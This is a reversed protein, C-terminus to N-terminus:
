SQHDEKDDPTSCGREVTRLKFRWGRAAAVDVLLGSGVCRRMFGWGRWGKIRRLNWTHLKLITLSNSSSATRRLFIPGGRGNTLSRNRLFKPSKTDWRNMEEVDNGWEIPLHGQIRLIGEKNELRSFKRYSAKIGLVFENKAHRDILLTHLPHSSATTTKLEELLVM